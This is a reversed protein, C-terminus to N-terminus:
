TNLNTVFTCKADKLATPVVYGTVQIGGRGGLRYVLAQKVGAMVGCWSGPHEPPSLVGRCDWM